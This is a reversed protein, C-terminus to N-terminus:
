ETNKKMNCKALDVAPQPKSGAAAGGAATGGGGAGGGAAGDRQQQQEQQKLVIPQKQQQAGAGGAAGGTVGGRFAAAVPPRLPTHTCAYWVPVALTCGQRASGPPGRVTINNRCVVVLAKQHVNSDFSM